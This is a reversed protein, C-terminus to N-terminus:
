EFYEIVIKLDKSFNIIEIYVNEQVEITENPSNLLKKQTKNDKTLQLECFGNLCVINKNYEAPIEYIKDFLEYICDIKKIQKKINATNNTKKIQYLDKM